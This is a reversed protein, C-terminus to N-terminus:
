TQIINWWKIQLRLKQGPEEKGHQFDWGQHVRKLMRLIDKLSQVLRWTLHQLRRKKIRTTLSHDILNRKSTGEASNLTAEFPGINLDLSTHLFPNIPDTSHRKMPSNSRSGSAKLGKEFNFFPSSNQEGFAPSELTSREKENRPPSRRRRRRPNGGQFRLCSGYQWLKPDAEADEEIIKEKCEKILHDIRGCNCCFDPLIEYRVNIWIREQNDGTQICIGRRLPKIIDILIKITSWFKSKLTRGGASIIKIATLRWFNSLQM